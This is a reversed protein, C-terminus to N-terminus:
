SNLLLGLIAAVVVGGIVWPLWGPMADRQGLALEEELLDVTPSVPPAAASAHSGFAAQPAQSMSQASPANPAVDPQAATAATAYAGHSAEAHQMTHSARAVRAAKERSLRPAAKLSVHSSRPAANSEPPLPRAPPQQTAVPPQEQAARHPAAAPPRAEVEAKIAKEVKTPEVRSDDKDGDSKSNELWQLPVGVLTEGDRMSSSGGLAAELLDRRAQIADADKHEIAPKLCALAEQVRGESGYIRALRIRRPDADEDTGAAEVYQELRARLIRGHQNQPVKEELLAMAEDHDPMLDLARQAYHIAEGAELAQAVSTLLDAAQEEDGEQGRAAYLDALEELTDVDPDISIAREFADIALDREVDGEKWASAAHRWAAARMSESAVPDEDLASARQQLMMCRRENGQQRQLLIDLQTAARELAPNRELAREFLGIATETEHLADETEEAAACLARASVTKDQSQEAFHILRQTLDRALPALESPTANALRQRVEAVLRRLGEQDFPGRGRDELATDM